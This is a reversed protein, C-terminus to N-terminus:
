LATTEGSTEDEPLAHMNLSVFFFTQPSSNAPSRSERYTSTVSGPAERRFLHLFILRWDQM